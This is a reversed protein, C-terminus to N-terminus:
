ETVDTVQCIEREDAAGEDDEQEEQGTSDDHHLNGVTGTEERIRSHIDGETLFHMIVLNLTEAALKQPATNNANWPNKTSKELAPTLVATMCTPVISKHLASSNETTMRHLTEVCHDWTKDHQRISVTAMVKKLDDLIASMIAEDVFACQPITEWHPFCLELPLQGGTEAPTIQLPM